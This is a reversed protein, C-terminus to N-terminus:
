GKLARSHHMKLVEILGAVESTALPESHKRAEQYGRTIGPLEKAQPRIMGTEVEKTTLHGVRRQM